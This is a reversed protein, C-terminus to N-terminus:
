HKRSKYDYQYTYRYAGYASSTKVIGNFVIGKTRVGGQILRKNAQEIERM